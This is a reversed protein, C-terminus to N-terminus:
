LSQLLHILLNLLILVILPFVKTVSPFVKTVLPFVKTVSLGFIHESFIYKLFINENFIIGFYIESIFTPAFGGQQGCPRPQYRAIALDWGLVWINLNDIWFNMQITEKKVKYRYM